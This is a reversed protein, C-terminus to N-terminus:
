KVGSQWEVILRLRLDGVRTVGQFDDPKRLAVSGDADRYTLHQQFIDHLKAVRVGAPVLLRRWVAPEVEDLTIRM